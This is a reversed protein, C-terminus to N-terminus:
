MAWSQTNRSIGAGVARIPNPVVALTEQGGLPKRSLPARMRTRQLRPNPWPQHRQMGGGFQRSSGCSELPSSVGVPPTSRGPRLFPSDPDPPGVLFPIPAAIRLYRPAESWSRLDQAFWLAIVVGSELIGVLIAVAVRLRNRV